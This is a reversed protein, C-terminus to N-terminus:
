PNGDLCHLRYGDNSIWKGDKIQANFWCGRPTAPKGETFTLPYTLGGLDDHKISYLGALIAASTPPEPIRASAKELLKGATWGAAIGVGIALGGGYAKFAQQFEDTAPTGTQFYPFVQSSGILGALNPDDKFRDLVITVITAYQPRYAQRACSAAFRTVSNGDLVVMVIEAGANRAALCGATYDPQAISAQSRYVLDFGMSKAHEAFLTNAERCPPAEACTVIGLKHKDKVQDALAALNMLAFPEGDSAQPFYVPSDYFWKTAGTSGVVPVGKQTIYDVSSQGTFPEANALFAVAHRREIADQVQARHRAPDAADDYALFKVPHGNLGGKANVFKVWLQAGDTVPKLSSAAPGSLTGVSAVIVPSHGSPDPAPVQTATGGPPQPTQPKGPAASPNPAPAQSRGTPTEQGVGPRSPRPSTPRETPAATGSAAGPGNGASSELPPRGIDPSSSPPTPQESPVPAHTIAQDATRVRTGCGVGVTLLTIALLSSLLPRKRAPM